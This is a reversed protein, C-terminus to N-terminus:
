AKISAGSIVLNYKQGVIYDPVKDAENGVFPVSVGESTQFTVVWGIGAIKAVSVCVVPSLNLQTM